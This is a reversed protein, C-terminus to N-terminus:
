NDAPFTKGTLILVAYISFRLYDRTYPDDLDAHIMDQIKKLRYILTNRHIFLDKSAHTINREDSLYVALTKLFETHERQDEGCIYLVDPHCAYYRNKPDTELILFEMACRSFFFTGFSHTDKMHRLAYDAQRYFYPLLYIDRFVLSVGINVKDAAWAKTLIDALNQHTESEELAIVVLASRIINVSTYPMLKLVMRRLLHLTYGSRVPERPEIVYVRFMGGCDWHNYKLHREIRERDATGDQIFEAFVDKHYKQNANLTGSGLYPAIVNAIHQLLQLDGSNLTRDKEILVLRACLEDQWFVKQNAINYRTRSSKSELIQPINSLSNDINQSFVKFFDVSEISSCRYEKLYKWETDVDEPGYQSSLAIMQNNGDSLALPNHFIPWSCDVIKQFDGSRAATRIQEDWDDYYDFIGQLVEFAQKYDMGELLFYDRDGGRCIVDDGAQSIQLCQPAYTMRASKLNPKSDSEIYWKINFDRLRNVIMWMSLKM